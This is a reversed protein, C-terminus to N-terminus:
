VPSGMTKAIHKWHVIESAFGDSIQKEAEPSMNSYECAEEVSKKLLSLESFDTVIEWISLGDSQNEIIEKMELSSVVVGIKQDRKRIEKIFEIGTLGPLNYDTVIADYEEPVYKKLAEEASVFYTVRYGQDTLYESILDRLITDDKVLLIKHGV